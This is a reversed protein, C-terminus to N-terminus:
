FRSKKQLKYIFTKWCLLSTNYKLTFWFKKHEFIAFLDWYWGSECVTFHLCTFFQCKLVANRQYIGEVILAHIWVVCSTYNKEFSVHKILNILNWVLLGCSDITLAPWSRQFTRITLLCLSKICFKRKLWCWASLYYQFVQHVKCDFFTSITNPRWCCMM